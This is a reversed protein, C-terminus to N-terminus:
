LRWCNINEQAFETLHNQLEKFFAVQQKADNPAYINVLILHTDDAILDLILLRGNKDCISKEVKFDLIPNILTMVGKSHSTGHSFFVEGGWEAEWIRAHEISSYTEQLFTFHYKRNHLWRFISRRKISKNLGKVNLSQFKFNFNFHSNM